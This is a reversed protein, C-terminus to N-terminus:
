LSAVGLAGVVIAAVTATDSWRWPPLHLHLCEPGGAPVSAPHLMQRWAGQALPTQLNELVLSLRVVLREHDLGCRALPQLLGWLAAFLGTHGLRHFLWALCGLMLLLRVAQLNAEALGEYTPAWALDFLAEGPTGYALILWLSLLLWRGRRVFRWWGPGAGPALVAIALLLGALAAYGVFQLAIVSALWLILASTPHLLLPTRYFCMAGAPAM